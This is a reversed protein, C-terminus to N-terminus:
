VETDVTDKHFANGIGLPWSYVCHKCPSRVYCTCALVSSRKDVYELRQCWPFPGLNGCIVKSMNMQATEGVLGLANTPRCIQLWLWLFKSYLFKPLTAKMRPLKSERLLKLLPLSITMILKKSRESHGFLLAFSKWQCSNM